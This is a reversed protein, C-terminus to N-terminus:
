HMTEPAGGFRHQRRWLHRANRIRRPSQIAAPQDATEGNGGSRREM